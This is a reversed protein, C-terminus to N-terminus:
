PKETAKPIVINVVGKKNETTMKDGQVPSPLTVSREFRGSRREQRLVKGKGSERSESQVSGSISLTQGELNVQIRSDEVGPLDVTVLYRDGKDEVNIEPAFAYDQFLRGFDDSRQFRNFADGFMQNMRDQMAHMERFPDWDDFERLFRDEDPILSKGPLTKKLHGNGQEAQAASTQPPSESGSRPSLKRYMSYMAVGQVVVAVALAAVVAMLIGSKSDTQGIM